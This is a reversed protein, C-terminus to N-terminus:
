CRSAVQIQEQQGYDAARQLWVVPLISLVHTSSVPAFPGTYDKLSWDDAELKVERADNAKVMQQRMLIDQLLAKTRTLKAELVAVKEEMARQMLDLAPLNAREMARRARDTTISWDSSSDSTRVQRTAAADDPADLTGVNSPCPSNSPLINQLSAEQTWSESTIRVGKLANAEDTSSAARTRSPLEQVQPRGELTTRKRHAMKRDHQRKCKGTSNSSQREPVASRSVLTPESAASMPPPTVAAITLFDEQLRMYHKDHNTNLNGAANCRPPLVVQQPQSSQPDQMAVQDSDTPQREQRRNPQPLPPRQQKGHSRTRFSDIRPQIQTHLAKPYPKGTMALWTITNEHTWMSTRHLSLTGQGNAWFIPTDPLLRHTEVILPLLFALEKSESYVAAGNAHVRLYDYNYQFPKVEKCTHGYMNFISLRTDSYSTDVDYGAASVRWAVDQFGWRDRRESNLTSFFQPDFEKVFSDKLTSFIVWPVTDIYMHYKVLTFQYYLPVEGIMITGRVALFRVESAQQMTWNRGNTEDTYSADRVSIPGPPSGM